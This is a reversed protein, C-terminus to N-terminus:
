DKKGMRESAMELYDLRDKLYKMQPESLENVKCTYEFIENLSKKIRYKDENNFNSNETISEIATNGIVNEQRISEWLDPESIERKLYEIWERFISLQGDWNLSSETVVRVEKGPSYESIRARNIGMGFIFYYETGKCTLKSVEGDMWEGQFIGWNFLTPSIDSNEIERFVDNKQSTFLTNPSM